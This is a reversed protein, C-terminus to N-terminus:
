GERAKVYDALAERWPRPVPYGLEALRPSILASFAPRKVPTPWDASLIKAVPVDGLGALNLTEVAVDHWSCIGSNVGHFTGHVAHQVLFDITRALDVTYTPTGLQDTVVRLTKGARAADIMIGPFSKGHVGYLWSTRVIQHSACAERILNEGEFKSAGYVCQPNPVDSETYPERRTGDFVYDTSVAIIRAGVTECASAVNGAGATNVRFAKDQQTECADVNTFAACHIVIEPGAGSLYKLTAEPDTIDFTETDCSVVEHGNQRFLACVDTGLMGRGGTVLIKM